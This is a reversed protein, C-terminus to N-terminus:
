RLAEALLESSTAGLFGRTAEMGDGTYEDPWGDREAQAVQPM